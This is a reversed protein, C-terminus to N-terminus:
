GKAEPAIVTFTAMDLAHKTSRGGAFFRFDTSLRTHGSHNPASAHVIWESLVLVDGPELAPQV